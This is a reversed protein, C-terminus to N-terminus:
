RSLEFGCNECFRTGTANVTSCNPCRGNVGAAHPPATGVGAPGPPTGTGVSVTKLTQAALVRNNIVAIARLAEPLDVSVNEIISRKFVVGHAHLSSEVVIGIKKSLFYVLAAIGALVLFGFGMGMDTGVEIRHSEFFGSLLNFVCGFAFLIAFGLAWISRQYACVVATVKGLPIYMHLVGSLSASRISVESDTVTLDVGPELRLLNLLWSVIGSTRGSIQVAPGFTAGENIRFQKLVISTGRVYSTRGRWLLVIVGVIVVFWLFISFGLTPHAESLLGPM